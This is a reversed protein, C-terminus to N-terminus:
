PPDAHSPQLQQRYGALSTPILRTSASSSPWPPRSAAPQGGHAKLSIWEEATVTVRRSARAAPSGIRPRTRARAAGARSGSSRTHRPLFVVGNAARLGLKGGNARRLRLRASQTRSPLILPLLHNPSHRVLRSNVAILRRGSSTVVALVQSQSSLKPRAAAAAAPRLKSEETM